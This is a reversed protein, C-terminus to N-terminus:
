DDELPEGPRLLSYHGILEWKEEVKNVLKLVPPDEYVDVYAAICASAVCARRKYPIRSKDRSKPEKV